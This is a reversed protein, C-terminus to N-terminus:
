QLRYTGQSSQHLFGEQRNQSVQQRARSGSFLPAILLTGPSPLTQRWLSNSRYLRARPEILCNTTLMM